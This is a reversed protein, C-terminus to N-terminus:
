RTSTSSNHTTDKTTVSPANQNNQWQQIIEPVRARIEPSLHTNAPHLPDLLFEAVKIRSIFFCSQQKGNKLIMTPCRWYSGINEFHENCNPCKKIILNQWHRIKRQQHRLLYDKSM